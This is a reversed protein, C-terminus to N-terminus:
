RCKPGLKYIKATFTEGHNIRCKVTIKHCIVSMEGHFFVLWPSKKSFRATRATSIYTDTSVYIYLYRNLRLYIPIPQSTSIYTDISIYIYLYRNLHLYIPILQSTSIYTDTSIYIYLYRNLHLYIPIPQSTSIYTDTPIGNILKVRGCKQAQGM